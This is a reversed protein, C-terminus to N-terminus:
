RRGVVLGAEVVIGRGGAAAGDVLRGMVRRVEERGRQGWRETWAAVLRRAVPNEGEFWFRLFAETDEFEFPMALREGRVDQFGVERLAAEVEAVDRWADAHFPNPPAYAPDLTTCAQTWFNIPGNARTWIGIGIVGGEHSRAHIQSIM